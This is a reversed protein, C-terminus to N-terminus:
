LFNSENNITSKSSCLDARDISVNKFKNYIYNSIKSENIGVELVSSVDINLLDLSDIIRKAIIKYIFNNEIFRQQSRLLKLYQKNIM